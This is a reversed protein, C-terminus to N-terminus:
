TRSTEETESNGPAKRFVRRASRVRDPTQERFSKEKEEAFFITQMKEKKIGTKERFSGGCPNRPTRFVIRGHDSRM